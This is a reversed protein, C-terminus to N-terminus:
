KPDRQRKVKFLGRKESPQKESKPEAKNTPGSKTASKEWKRDGKAENTAIWSWYEENLVHETEIDILIPEEPYDESYCLIFNGTQFLIKNITIEFDVKNRDDYLFIPLTIDIM